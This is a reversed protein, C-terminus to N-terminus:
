NKEKTNLAQVDKVISTGEFIGKSEIILENASIEGKVHGQAKIEVRNADITGDIFGQVIVTEGSIM